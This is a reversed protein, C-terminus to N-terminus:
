SGISAPLSCYRAGQSRSHILRLSQTHKRSKVQVFFRPDLVKSNQHPATIGEGGFFSCVRSGMVSPSGIVLIKKFYGEGHSYLSGGVMTNTSYNNEAEKADM